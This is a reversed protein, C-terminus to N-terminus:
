FLRSRRSKTKTQFNQLRGNVRHWAESPAAPAISRHPKKSLSFCFDEIMASVPDNPHEFVFPKGRNIANVFHRPAFPLVLAIEHQLAAEIKKKALGGHEFTWNLILKIKEKPYDLKSYTDIAIAAARISAMEPAMVLLITNAM